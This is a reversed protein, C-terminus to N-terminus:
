KKVEKAIFNLYKDNQWKRFLWDKQACHQCCFIAHQLPNYHSPARVPTLCWDCVANM